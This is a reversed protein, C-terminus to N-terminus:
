VTAPRLRPEQRRAVRGGEEDVSLLPQGPLARLDKQFAALQEPDKINHAFLTIGGVPYDAALARMRDNVAQTEFAPLEDSSVYHITTDLSEVRLFFLQGVKERLSMQALAEEVKAEDVRPAQACSVLFAGAIALAGMLLQVKNRM